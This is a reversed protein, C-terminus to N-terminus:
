MAHDVSLIMAKRFNGIWIVRQWLKQNYKWVSISPPKCEVLAIKKNWILPLYSNLRNYKLNQLNM